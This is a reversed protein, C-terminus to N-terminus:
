QSANGHQLVQLNALANTADQWWDIAPTLNHATPAQMLGRLAGLTYGAAYAYAYSKFSLLALLWSSLTVGLYSKLLAWRDAVQPPDFDRYHDNLFRRSYARAYALRRAQQPYTSVVTVPHEVAVCFAVLLAGRTGVRRSLFTDEGLGCRIHDLAFLDDSFCDERLADLRYGMVGGRLWRVPVYDANTNEPLKRHGAPSLDGPPTQNGSGLARMLRRLRKFRAPTGAAPQDPDKGPFVIDATVGVATQAFLPATIKEVADPQKIRLDDDFYLLVDADLHTHAALWGLYRQYSLNGHNSPLYFLQWDTPLAAQQLMDRVDDSGTDGDVIIVAEPQQSQQALDALLQSLLQPRKYTPICIVLSQRSTAEAPM